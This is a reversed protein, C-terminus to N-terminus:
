GAPHIEVIPLTRVAGVSPEWRQGDEGVLDHLVVGLHGSGAAERMLQEWGWRRKITRTTPRDPAQHEWEQQQPYRGHEAIWQRAAEVAQDYDAPRM